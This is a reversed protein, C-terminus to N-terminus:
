SCNKEYLIRLGELLLTDCYIIERGCYEIIERALGGTAVVRCVTGLEEEIRGCMGEIMSATGFIVGSRMSDVTNNGIVREPAELSISPLQATRNTLADLSIGVGPIICGGLMNKNEDYSWYVNEHVTDSGYAAAYIEIESKKVPKPLKMNIECAGIPTEWETPLLDYYLM